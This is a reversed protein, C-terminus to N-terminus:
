SYSLSVIQDRGKEKARFLATDAMHILDEATKIKTHPSCAIGFSATVTFGEKLPKFRHEKVVKQLREAEIHAGKLNTQPL